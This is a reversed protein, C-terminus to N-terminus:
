KYRRAFLAGRAQWYPMANGKGQRPREADYYAVYETLAHQLSREGFFILRSLAADKPFDLGPASPPSGMFAPFSMYKPTKIRRTRLLPSAMEHFGDQM